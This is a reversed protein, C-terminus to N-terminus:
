NVKSAKSLFQQLDNINVELRFKELVDDDNDGRKFPDDTGYGKSDEPPYQTWKTMYDIEDTQTEIEFIDENTQVKEHKLHSSFATMETPDIDLISFSKKDLEITKLLDNARRQQRDLSDHNFFIKSSYCEVLETPVKVHANAKM